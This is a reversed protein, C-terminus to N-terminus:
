DNSKPKYLFKETSVLIGKEDYYKWEGTEIGNKYSGEKRLKGAEDYFKWEGNM